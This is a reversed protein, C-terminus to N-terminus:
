ARGFWFTIEPLQYHQKRALLILWCCLLTELNIKFFATLPYDPQHHCLILLPL